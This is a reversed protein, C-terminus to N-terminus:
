SEYNNEKFNIMNTIIENWNLLKHNKLNDRSVHVIPNFTDLGDLVNVKCDKFLEDHPPIKSVYSDKALFVGESAANWSNEVKSTNIYFMSNSLIDVVKNHDMIGRPEVFPDNRINLPITDIDGCIVLKLGSNSARLRKYIKYSDQLNKHHYTGVIVAINKNTSKLPISHIAIIEQDSGNPSVQTKKNSKLSLLKLSFNSEASIFDSHKLGLKTLIGLWLLEIKRRYPINFMSMRTFPLVNSLHFWNINALNKKLPINYSYYFHCEGIERIVSDVYKQSNIFKLFSNIDVYHYKNRSFIEFKDRLSENVIFHAGGRKDFWEIYATLRKLGGGSSSSSFNFLYNKYPKTNKKNV